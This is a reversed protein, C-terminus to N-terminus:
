VILCVIRCLCPPIQSGPTGDIHFDPFVLRKLVMAASGPLQCDSSVDDQVTLWSPVPTTSGRLVGHSRMTVAISFLADPERVTPLRTRESAFGTASCVVVGGTFLRGRSRSEYGRLASPHQVVLERLCVIVVVRGLCGCGCLDCRSSRCARQKTTRYAGESGRQQKQIGNRGGQHDGAGQGANRTTRHHRRLHRTALEDISRGAIACRASHHSPRPPPLKASENLDIRWGLPLLNTKPAGSDLETAHLPLTNIRYMAM